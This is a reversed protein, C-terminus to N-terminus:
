GAYLFCDGPDFLATRQVREVQAPHPAPQRGNETEVGAKLFPRTRGGFRYRIVLYIGKENKDGKGKSRDKGMCGKILDCSDDQDLIGFDNKFGIEPAYMRLVRNGIHHFTGNWLGKPSYKLIMEARNQMEHAAKNTFTMLLINQAPVGRELLYALRYILTRTKGSGAGALVLCPGEAGAVVEYQEANLSGKFDIHSKIEGYDEHLIYKKVREM